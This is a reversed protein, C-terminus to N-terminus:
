VLTYEVVVDITGTFNATDPDVVIDLDAAATAAPFPNAVTHAKLGTGYTNLAVWRAATNTTGLTLGSGSSATTASTTISLVRANGPLAVQGLLSKAEHTGTWTAHGRVTHTGTTAPLLWEVGSAPLIIDAPPTTGSVDHWQYGAGPQYADFQALTGRSLLVAGTLSLSGIDSSADIVLAVAVGVGAPLLTLDFNRLGTASVNVVGSVLTPAGSPDAVLYMRAPGSYATVNASLRYVHGAKKGIFTDTRAGSALATSNTLAVSAGSASVLSTAAGNYAVWASANLATMSGGRDAAAPGGTAFLAAVQAGTLGYNYSTPPGYLRGHWVYASNSNTVGIQSFQSAYNFADAITGVLRDNFFLYGTGNLRVYTARFIEGAVVPTSREILPTPSGNNYWGIKGSYCVFSASADPTGMMSMYIAPLVDASAGVSISFDGLGPTPGAWPIGTTGDLVLAQMPARANVLPDVKADVLANIRPNVVQQQQNGSGDEQFAIIDGNAM